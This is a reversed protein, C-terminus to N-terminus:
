APKDVSDPQDDLEVDGVENGGPEIEESEWPPFAHPEIVDLDYDDDKFGRRLCEEILDRQTRAIGVREDGHYCVWKGHNRKDKLLEPLERWFAQQSRLIGPPIESAGEPKEPAEGDELLSRVQEYQERAILVYRQSTSPDVVDVPKGPEAQLALRQEDTLEISM